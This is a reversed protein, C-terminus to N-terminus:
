HGWQVHRLNGNVLQTGAAYLDLDVVPVPNFCLLHITEQSDGPARARRWQKDLALVATAGCVLLGHQQSALSNRKVATTQTQPLTM